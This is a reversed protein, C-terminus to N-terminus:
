SVLGHNNFTVFGAHRRRTIPDMAFSADVAGFIVDAFGTKRDETFPPQLGGHCPFVSLILNGSIPALFDPFIAHLLDPIVIIFLSDAAILWM